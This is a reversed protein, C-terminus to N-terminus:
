RYLLFKSRRKRFAELGASWGAEIEWWSSGSELASRLAPTGALRDFSDLFRFDEPHRRRITDLVALACTVARFSQPDVVHAEIGQCPTGKFKSFTPEFATERFIVGPLGLGQLEESVGRSDLWPAGVLHFPRTTGRGESLNTGEILVFGAYLLATARTPINPSPAIWVSKSDNWQGRRWGRSRIIKLDAGIGREENVLLAFEGPTLGHRLPLTHPGVFSRMDEVLMPGELAGGLPNPRDLVWFEVKARAAEELAGLLTSLYTYTRVGIDQIDFILVEVGELMEPTPRRHDGYLSFVPVGTRPDRADRLSEGAQAIGRFGHEPAFVAVLKTRDNRDLLDILHGLKNDVATHNAILGVRRGELARFDEAILVDLGTEVEPASGCGVFFHSILLYGVVFSYGLGDTSNRYRFAAANTMLDEDKAATRV